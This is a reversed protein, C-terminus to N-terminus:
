DGEEEKGEETVRAQNDEAELAMARGEETVTAQNDVAQIAMVQNAKAEVEEQGEGELNEMNGEGLYNDEEGGERSNGGIWSLEERVDWNLYRHSVMPVVMIFFNRLADNVVLAEHGRM